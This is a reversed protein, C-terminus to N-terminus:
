NPHPRHDEVIVVAGGPITIDDLKRSTLHPTFGIEKGLMRVLSDIFRRERMPRQFKMSVDHKGAHENPTITVEGLLEDPQAFIRQLVTILRERLEPAQMFDFSVISVAGRETGYLVSVLPPVPNTM